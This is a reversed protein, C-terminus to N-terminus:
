MAAFGVQFTVPSTETMGYCNTMCNIGLVDVIKRMLEPPCIAGGTIGTRLTAVKRALREQEAVCAVFMTPVGYLSTIGESQVADLTAAANFSADPYVM